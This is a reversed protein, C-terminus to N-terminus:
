DPATKGEETAKQSSAPRASEEASSELAKKKKLKEDSFRDKFWQIV